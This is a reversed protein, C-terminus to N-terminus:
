EDWKVLKGFDFKNFGDSPGKTEVQTLVAKVPATPLEEPQIFSFQDTAILALLNLLNVFQSFTIVSQLM